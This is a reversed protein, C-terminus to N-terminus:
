KHMLAHLIMSIVNARTTTVNSPDEIFSAFEAKQMANLHLNSLSEVNKLVVEYPAHSKKEYTSFDINDGTIHLDIKALLGSNVAFVYLQGAMIKDGGMYKATISTKGKLETFATDSIRLTKENFQPSMAIRVQKIPEKTVLDITEIDNYPMTEKAIVVTFKQEVHSTKIAQVNVTIMKSINGALDEAEVTLVAPLQKGTCFQDTSGSWKPIENGDGYTVKNVAVNDWVQICLMDNPTMYARQIIPKVDDIIACRSYDINSPAKKLAETNLYVLGTCVDSGLRSGSVGQSIDLIGVEASGRGAFWFQTGVTCGYHNGNSNITTQSTVALTGLDVTGVHQSEDTWFLTSGSVFVTFTGAGFMAVGTDILTQQTTDAKSIKLIQSNGGGFSSKHLAVYINSVDNDIGRPNSGATLVTTTLVSQSTTSFKYMKSAREDTLWLITPDSKDISLGTISQAGSIAIRTVGLTAPDIKVLGVFTVPSIGANAQAFSDFQYNYQLGAWVANNAFIMASFSEGSGDYTHFGHASPNEDIKVTAPHDTYGLGLPYTVKPNGVGIQEIIPIPTWANTSPVFKWVVGKLANNIFLNGSTDRVVSYFDEDFSAVGAHQPLLTVALTSKDIKALLGQNFISVYAFNPDECNIGFAFDNPSLTGALNINIFSLAGHAQKPYMGTATILTAFLIGMVALSSIKKFSDFTRQM